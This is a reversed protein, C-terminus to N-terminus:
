GGGCLLHRIYDLGEKIGGNSRGSELYLDVQTKLFRYRIWLWRTFDMTGASLSSTYLTFCPHFGNHSKKSHSTGVTAKGCSFILASIIPVRGSVLYPCCTFLSTCLPKRAIAVTRTMIIPVTKAMQRMGHLQELLLHVCKQIQIMSYNLKVIKMPKAM